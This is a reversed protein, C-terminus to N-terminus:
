FRQRDHHHQTNADYGCIKYRQYSLVQYGTFTTAKARIHVEVREKNNAVIHPKAICDDVRCHSLTRM